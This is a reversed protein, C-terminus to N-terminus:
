SSGSRPLTARAVGDAYAPSESAMPEVPVLKLERDVLAKIAVMVGILYYPVDYNVLSLFAAGVLYGIIMVQTMRAFDQVWALDPRQSTARILARAQRWYAFYLLLYLTLGVFGHEGLAQFYISHAAQNGFTPDPSYTEYLETTSAEFGAGVIPSDKAINFMTAWSNLRNSASRDEQYDNITGMREHWKQPMFTAVPLILVAAAVLILLKNRSKWWLLIGMATAGLLAGRSYTGLISIGCLLMMGTLARHVYRRPESIQLFRMIPIL